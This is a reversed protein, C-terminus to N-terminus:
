VKLVLTFIMLYFISIVFGGIVDSSYHVGLYIRSLGILLILSSLLIILTNRLWKNNIKKWIIYIILGYFATSIMSHGSPFSYGTEDILRYGIPRSRQIVNKILINLITILILNIPIWLLIKNKRSFLIAIISITILVYTGGLNTLIKFISTLIPNRMKQVVINYIFSDIKMTEEKFIERILGVFIIICIIGIIIKYNEKLVKEIKKFM